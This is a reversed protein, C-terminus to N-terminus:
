IHTHTHTHLLFSHKSKTRLAKWKFAFALPTGHSYHSHVVTSTISLYIHAIDIFSITWLWTGSATTCRWRWLGTSSNLDSTVKYVRQTAGDRSQIAESSTVDMVKYSRTHTRFHSFLTSSLPLPLDTLRQLRQPVKCRDGIRGSSPFWSEQGWLTKIMSWQPSGTWSCIM